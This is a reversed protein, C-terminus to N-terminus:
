PIHIDGVLAKALIIIFESGSARLKETVGDM